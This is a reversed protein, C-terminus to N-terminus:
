EEKPPEEKKPPQEEKPSKAKKHRMFMAAGIVGAIAAIVIITALWLQPPQGLPDQPPLAKKPDDPYKDLVQQYIQLAERHQGDKEKKLAANVLAYARDSEELLTLTFFSSEGSLKMKEPDLKKRKDRKAIFDPVYNTYSEKFPDKLETQKQKTSDDSLLPSVFFLIIIYISINKNNM